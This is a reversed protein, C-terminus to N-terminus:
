LPQLNGILQAPRVSSPHHLSESVRGAAGRVTNPQGRVSSLTLHPAKYRGARERSSQDAIEGASEADDMALGRTKDVRAGRSLEGSEVRHERREAVPDRDFYM